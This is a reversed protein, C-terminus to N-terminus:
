FINQKQKSIPWQCPQGVNGFDSEFSSHGNLFKMSSYMDDVIKCSLSVLFVSMNVRCQGQWM